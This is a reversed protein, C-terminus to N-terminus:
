IRIKFNPLSNKKYNTEKWIGGWFASKIEKSMESPLEKKKTCPSHGICELGSLWTLIQRFSAEKPHINM